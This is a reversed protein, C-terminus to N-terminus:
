KSKSNKGPSESTVTGPRLYDSNLTYQGLSVELGLPTTEEHILKISMEPFPPDIKGIRSRDEKSKGGETAPDYVRAIFTAYRMEYSHTGCKIIRSRESIIKKASQIDGNSEVKLGLDKEMIQRALIEQIKNELFPNPQLFFNEEM